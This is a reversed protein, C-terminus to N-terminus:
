VYFDLTIMIMMNLTTNFHIKKKGYPEKKSALIKIADTMYTLYNKTKIFVVRTSRKIM